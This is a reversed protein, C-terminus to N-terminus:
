VDDDDVDDVEADEDDGDVVDVVVYLGVVDDGDVDDDCGANDNDDDIFDVRPEV